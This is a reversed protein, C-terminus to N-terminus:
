FSFLFFCKINIHETHQLNDNHIQSNCNLLSEWEGKKSKETMKNGINHIHKIDHKHQEM